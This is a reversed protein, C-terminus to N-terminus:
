EAGGEARDIAACAKRIDFVDGNGDYGGGDEIGDVLEVLAELLEANISELEAIRKRFAAAGEFPQSM